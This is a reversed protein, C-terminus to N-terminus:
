CYCVIIFLNYFRGKPFNKVYEVVKVRFSKADDDDFFGEFGTGEYRSGLCDGALAALLCGRIRELSINNSVMAKFLNKQGVM